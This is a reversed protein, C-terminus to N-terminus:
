IHLYIDLSQGFFLKFLFKIETKMEDFCENPINIKFINIKLLIYKM